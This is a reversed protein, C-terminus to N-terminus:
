LQCEPLADKRWKEIDKKSNQRIDFLPNPFFEGRSPLLDEPLGELQNERMKCFLNGEINNKFLRLQKKAGEVPFSSVFGKTRNAIDMIAEQQTIRINKSDGGICKLTDYALLAGLMCLVSSSKKVVTINQTKDKSNKRQESYKLFKEYEYRLTDTSITEEETECGLKTTLQYKIQLMMRDIYNRKVEEEMYGYPVDCRFEICGLPLNEKVKVTATHRLSSTCYPKTVKKLWDSLSELNNRGDHEKFCAFEKFVEELHYLSMYLNYHSYEYTNKVFRVGSFVELLWDLYLSQTSAMNYRSLVQKKDLHVFLDELIYFRIDPPTNEEGDISRINEYDGTYGYRTSGASKKYFGELVGNFGGEVADIKKIKEDCLGEFCENFLVGPLAEKMKTASEMAEYANHIIEFTNRAESDNYYLDRAVLNMLLIQNIADLCFVRYTTLLGRKEIKEVKKGM